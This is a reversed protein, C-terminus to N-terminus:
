KEGAARIASKGEETVHFIYDGGSLESGDRRIAAGKEVLGQWAPFDTSGEGTCFHNRFSVKKYNLGLAHRMLEIESKSLDM